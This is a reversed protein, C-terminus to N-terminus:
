NTILSNQDDKKKPQFEENVHGCRSCKFSPMPVLTDQQAGTIIKSIRFLYTIDTFTDNGCEECNIAKGHEALNIRAKNQDM